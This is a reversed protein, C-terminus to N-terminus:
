LRTFLAMQTPQGLVFDEEGIGSFRVHYGNRRAVGTSWSRFKERDWEFRHDPQRFEDRALGFIENYEANPTTMVLTKPQYYGFVSQEVNGLMGPDIHEITEVMACAEFGRLEANRDAYSGVIMSLQGPLNEAHPAGLEQRIAQEAHWLTASCKDVGVIREFQPTRILRRLLGGSGCGLDVVSKAGSDVLTQLVTDLREEHLDTKDYLM